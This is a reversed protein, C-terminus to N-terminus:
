EVVVEYEFFASERGPVDMRVKFRDGGRYGAESTYYLVTAQMDKGACDHVSGRKASEPIQKIEQAPEVAGHGPPEVVVIDISLYSCDDKWGTYEDMWEPQGSLATRTYSGDQAAAASAFHIGILTAAVVSVFPKRM